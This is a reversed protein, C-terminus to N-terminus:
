SKNRHHQKGHYEDKLMRYLEEVIQEISKNDTDVTFHAVEQYLAQRETLLREVIEKINGRKLLPRGKGQGVRLVIQEPAAKLWIVKGGARLVRRNKEKLVAGGGTAVVQNPMRCIKALMLEEESRFRILGHRKFILPIPMKVIKEIEEDIDVFKLNLRLALRKGIATKGAGMFGVLIINRAM